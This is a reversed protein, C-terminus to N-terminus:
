SEILPSRSCPVSCSSMRWRRVARASGRDGLEIPVQSPKVTGSRTGSDADPQQENTTTPMGNSPGAVPKPESCQNETAPPQVESNKMTAPFQQIPGSAFREDVEKRTAAPTM